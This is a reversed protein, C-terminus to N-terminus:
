SKADSEDPLLALNQDIKPALYAAVAKFVDSNSTAAADLAPRMFPKQQSGPHEVKSFTQGNFSVAKAGSAEIVHAATGFEVMHAYFAQKSGAKLTAVVDGNKAARTSIRLSGALDGSVSHISERAQKLTIKLGARLAGRLLKKQINLPLQSLQASLADLGTIIESDMM